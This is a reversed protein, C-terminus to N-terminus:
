SSKPSWVYSAQQHFGELTIGGAEHLGLVAYANNRLGEGEVMARLTCYHIGKILQHDNQHSHGQLVVRVRGSQELIQRVISANKVSYRGADDLRQHIFVIMPDDASALEAELWKIQDSPLASDTWDFNMRGYPKGDSRFCADLIVFHFGGHQFAYHSERQRVAGLFENKTLASVCHNGLVYHRDAALQSFARDIRRLFGKEEELSDATDILDGLEVVFDVKQDAFFEIAAELKQESQRYFRQNVSEKDAYHLDAVIGVRLTPPLPVNTLDAMAKAM